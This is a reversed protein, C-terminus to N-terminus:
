PTKKTESSGFFPLFSLEEESYVFLMLIALLIVSCTIGIDAVNFVPFHIVDFSIFDVVYGLRIRDFLNGFAGSVICLLCILLPRFRKTSPVRALVIMVGIVLLVILITLIDLKGSLVGWAAGRNEVYRLTVNEGIVRIHSGNKLRDIAWLKTLQDILVLIIPIWLYYIKRIGTNNQENNM